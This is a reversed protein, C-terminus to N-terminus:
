AAAPALRQLGDRTLRLVEARQPMTWTGTASCMASSAPRWTESGPRHTHGHVLETAGLGQMWRLTEGADVDADATATSDRRTAPRGSRPPSRCDDAAAQGPLRDALGRQAGAARFAQYPQDALCLADGHSLLVASAGPTLVTPDPLGDHRLRAADPRGPLRPQRGHLGPRIRPRRPWCLSAASSSPRHRMDDGVWVEFLDGLMFVADASATSCCTLPWPRSPARCCPRACTCTPSSISAIGPHRRWGSPLRPCRRVPRAPV